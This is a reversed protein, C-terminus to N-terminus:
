ANKGVKTARVFTPRPAPASLGLLLFLYYSHNRQLLEIEKSHLCFLMRDLVRLLSFRRETLVGFNLRYIM